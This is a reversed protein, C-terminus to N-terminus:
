IEPSTHESINSLAEEAEEQLNPQVAIDGLSVVGVLNNSEIIPLRRIQRESMIRSADEIDMSPDGVVPNSSMIERVTQKQSNQGEAASRIAIDRDTVIGIVKDGNCVPIAGINHKRMLQAAREVNDEANLSVVCKTMIDQVKM